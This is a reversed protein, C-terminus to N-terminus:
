FCNFLLYIIKKLVRLKLVSTTVKFDPPLRYGPFRASVQEPLLVEHELSHLEASLRCNEFVSDPRPLSVNICGTM